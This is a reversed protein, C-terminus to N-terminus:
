TMNGVEVVVTDPHSSIARLGRDNDVDFRRCALVVRLEPYSTAETLLETLLGIRELHRGSAVSVADLKDIVLLANKGAALGALM